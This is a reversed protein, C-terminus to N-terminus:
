IDRPSRRVSSQICTWAQSVGSACTLALSTSEKWPGPLGFNSSPDAIAAILEHRTTCPTYQQGSSMLGVPLQLECLHCM